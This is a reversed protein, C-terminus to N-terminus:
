ILGIVQEPNGLWCRAKGLGLSISTSTTSFTPEGEREPLM